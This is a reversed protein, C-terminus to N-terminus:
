RKRRSSPTSGRVKPSPSSYTVESGGRGSLSRLALVGDYGVVWSASQTVYVTCNFQLKKISIVVIQCKCNNEQRPIMM